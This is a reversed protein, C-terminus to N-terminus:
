SCIISYVGVRTKKKFLNAGFSESTREEIIITDHIPDRQGPWACLRATDALQLAGALKFMRKEEYLKYGCLIIYVNRM